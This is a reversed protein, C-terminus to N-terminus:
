SNRRSRSQRSNQVSNNNLSGLKNSSNSEEAFEANFKEDPTQSNTHTQGEAHSARAKQAVTNMNGTEVAFEADYKENPTLSKGQGGMSGQNMQNNRPM